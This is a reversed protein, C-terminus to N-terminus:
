WKSVRVGPFALRERLDLRRRLYDSRDPIAVISMSAIEKMAIAFASPM